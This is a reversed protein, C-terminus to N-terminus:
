RRDGRGGGPGTGTLRAGTRGSPHVSTASRFRRCCWRRPRAGPRPRRAPLCADDPRALLGAPAAAAAAGPGRRGAIEVREVMRRGAQGAARAASSPKTAASATASMTGAPGRLARSIASRRAPRRRCPRRCGARSRSRRLRRPRARPRQADADIDAERRLQGLHAIRPAPARRCPRPPAPAAQGRRKPAGARRLPPALAERRHARSAPWPRAARAPPRRSAPRPAPARGSRRSRRRPRRAARYRRRARAPDDGALQQAARGSPPRRHQEGDVGVVGVDHERTTSPSRITPSHRWRVSPWACRRRTHRRASEASACPPCRDALRDGVRDDGADHRLGVEVQAPEARAIEVALRQEDALGFTTSPMLTLRRRPAPASRMQLVTPALMRNGAAGSITTSKPM